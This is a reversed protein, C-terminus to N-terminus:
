AANRYIVAPAWLNGIQIQGANDPHVSNTFSGASAHLDVVYIGEDERGDFAELLMAVYIRLKNMFAQALGLGTANDADWHTGIWSANITIGIYIRTDPSGVKVLDVFDRMTDIDAEWDEPFYTPVLRNNGADNTGLMIITDTFPGGYTSVYAPAGLAYPSPDDLVIEVGAGNVNSEDVLGPSVTLVSAAVNTVTYTGDNSATGGIAIIQGVIFGDSIWSGTNRTVTDGAAAFDLDSPSGTMTANGSIFYEATRGPRGEDNVGPDALAATQSGHMTWTFGAATLYRSFVNPWRDVTNVATNSDGNANAAITGSYGTQSIVLVRFTVRAVLAAAEYVRLTLSYSGLTPSEWFWRDSELSGPGNKEFTFASTDTLFLLGRFYLSAEVGEFVVHTRAFVLGVDGPLNAQTGEGLLALIASRM